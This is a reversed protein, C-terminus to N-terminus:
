PRGGGGFPLMGMAHRQFQRKLPPLRNVAALGLRRALAVPPLGNRFLRNLGDTAAAMALIDPWRKRVYATLVGQEGPDQGAQLAGVVANRLGDVDRMSVNFGQGAIPHMGHAAEGVLALRPATLRKALMLSLPYSWVQGPVTVRGLFDGFRRALEREFDSRQLTILYEAFARRETWVISARHQGDAGDAMPLIAFPGGALFREHAIGEHPREHHATCVIATEDYDTARIGIGAMRRVFSGRGDAAAILRARLERGDDFTVAAWHDQVDMATVSSEWYAAINPEDALANVMVRRLTHNELIHGMPGAGVAQHAFHLHMLSNRDSVRIDWIPGAEAALTEWVGLDQLVARAGAAIATTRGDVEIAALAAPSQREVLAVRAGSRGLALALSLGALGAGIIAVDVIESDSNSM